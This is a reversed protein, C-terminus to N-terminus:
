VRGDEPEVVAALWERCAAEFAAPQEVWPFHGSAQIVTLTSAAISEHIRGAQSVPDCIFDDDGVIVLTPVAIRHLDALLDDTQFGASRSLANVDEDIQLSSLFEDARDPSHFYFPWIAQLVERFSRPTTDAGTMIALASDVYGPRDTYFPSTRRAEMAKLLEATRVDDQIVIADIAIIGLLHEGHEIGYALAQHGGASHGAVFMRPGGIHQRLAELDSVFHALTYQDAREPGTSSGSHRTDLYVVTCFEELVPLPMIYDISPGWGPSPLLMVPGSGRVEYHLRNGDIEAVHSGPQLRRGAEEPASTEVTARPSPTLDPTIMRRRYRREAAGRMRPVVPRWLSGASGSVHNGRRRWSLSGPLTSHPIPRDRV